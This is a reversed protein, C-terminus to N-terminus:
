VKARLEHEFATATALADLATRLSQGTLNDILRRLAPIHEVRPALFRTLWLVLPICAMGVLLNVVLYSFGLLEYADVLAALQKQITVVPDSCNLSHLLVLTHIHIALQMIAFAQLTPCSCRAM